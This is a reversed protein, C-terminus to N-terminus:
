CTTLRDLVGSIVEVFPTTPLVRGARSIVIYKRDM